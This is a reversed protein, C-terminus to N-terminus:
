MREIVERITKLRLFRRSTELWIYTFGLTLVLVGLGWCLLKWDSTYGVYVMMAGAVAGGFSALNSIVVALLWRVDPEKTVPEDM